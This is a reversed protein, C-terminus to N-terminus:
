TQAHQNLAKMPKQQGYTFSMPIIDGFYVSFIKKKFFLFYVRSVFHFHSLFMQQVM